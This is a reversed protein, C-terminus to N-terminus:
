NCCCSYRFMIVNSVLEVEVCLRIVELLNGEKCNCYYEKLQEEVWILLESFLWSVFEKYAKRLDLHTKFPTKPKNHPSKPPPLPHHREILTFSLRGWALLIHLSHLVSGKLYKPSPSPFLILLSQPAETLVM